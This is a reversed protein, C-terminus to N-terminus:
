RTSKNNSIVKIDTLFLYVSVVCLFAFCLLSWGAISLGLFRWVVEACQTDGAFITKLTEWTGIVRLLYDLGPGCAPAAEVGLYQLWLQRTAAIVGCIALLLMVLAFGYTKINVFRYFCWGLIAVVAIAVYLLRQVICLSCPELGQGYQLYVGFGLLGFCLLFCLIYIREPYLGYQQAIKNFDYM